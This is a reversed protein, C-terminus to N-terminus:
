LPSHVRGLFKYDRFDVSVTKLFAIHNDGIRVAGGDLHEYGYSRKVVAILDLSDHHGGVLGYGACAVLSQILHIRFSCAALPTFIRSDIRARYIHIDERMDVNELVIAVGLLFHLHHVLGVLNQIRGDLYGGGRHTHRHGASM